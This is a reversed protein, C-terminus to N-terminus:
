PFTPNSKRFKVIRWNGTPFYLDLFHYFVMMCGLLFLMALCQFASASIMALIFAVVRSSTMRIIFGFIAPHHSYKLVATLECAKWRSSLRSHCLIYRM